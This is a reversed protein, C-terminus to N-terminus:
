RDFSPTWASLNGSEFGDIFITGLADLEFAGIDCATGAPVSREGRRQDEVIPQGAVGTCPFAEGADVAASDRELAHTATAGGNAGLAELGPDVGLLDSGANAVMSLTCGAENGLLNFGHSDLTRSETTSCDQGEAASNGAILSGKVAFNSSQGELIAIGGGSRIAQNDTITSSDITWNAGAFVGGGDGARNDSITTNLLTVGSGGIAGGRGGANGFFLSRVITTTPLGFASYVGGGSGAIGEPGSGSGAGNGEILCDTIEVTGRNYIAGGSGGEGSSPFQPDNVAQGSNGARNDRVLCGPGKLSLHGFNYISGGDGGQGPSFPIGREPSFGGNGGDGARAGTLWCRDITLDGGNLIAGGVSGPTGIAQRIHSGGHLRLNEIRM